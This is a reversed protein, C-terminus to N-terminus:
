GCVVLWGLSSSAPSAMVRKERAKETKYDIAHTSGGFICRFVRSKKPGDEMRIDMYVGEDGRVLMLCALLNQGRKVDYM